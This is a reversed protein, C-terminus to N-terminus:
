ELYQQTTGPLLFKKEKHDVDFDEESLDKGLPSSFNVDEIDVEYDEPVKSLLQILQKVLM